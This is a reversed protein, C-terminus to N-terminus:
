QGFDNDSESNTDSQISEPKKNYSLIDIVIRWGFCVIYLVIFVLGILKMDGEEIAAVIITLLVIIGFGAGFIILRRKVAKKTPTKVFCFVFLAIILCSMAGQAFSMM